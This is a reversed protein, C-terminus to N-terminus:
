FIVLCLGLKKKKKLQHEKDKRPGPGRQSDLSLYERFLTCVVSACFTSHLECVGFDMGSSWDLSEWVQVHIPISQLDMNFHLNGLGMGMSKFKRSISMKFVYELSNSTDSFMVGQNELNFGGRHKWFSRSCCSVVSFFLLAWSLYVQTWLGMTRSWKSPM